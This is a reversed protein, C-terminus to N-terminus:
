SGGGEQQALAAAAAAAVDRLRRAAEIAAQLDAILAAADEITIHGYVTTQVGAYPASVHIAMDDGPFSGDPFRAM